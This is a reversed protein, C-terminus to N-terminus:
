PKGGRPAWPPEDADLEGPDKPTAGPNTPAPPLGARASTILEVISTHAEDLHERALLYGLRRRRPPAMQDDATGMLDDVREGLENLWARVADLDSFDLPKSM